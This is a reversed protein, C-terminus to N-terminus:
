KGQQYDALCIGTAHTPCYGGPNKELYQQHYEEAAWFPKLEAPPYIQTLVPGYGAEKLAKEALEARAQALEYQTQTTTYILSRYQTGKDAGQGDSQTPDHNEFFFDLLEAEHGSQYEVKVVEAHGTLGTCVMVYTPNETHGGMYGVQTETVFPFSRLAKEVGWFCGMALYITSQDM